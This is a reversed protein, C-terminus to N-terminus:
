KRSTAKSTISMRSLNQSELKWERIMPVMEEARLHDTTMPSRKFRFVGLRRKVVGEVM